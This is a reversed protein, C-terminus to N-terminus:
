ILYITLTGTLRPAFFQVYKGADNYKSQQEKM